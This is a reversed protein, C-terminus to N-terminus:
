EHQMSCQGRITSTGMWDKVSWSVDAFPVSVNLKIMDGTSAASVDSLNAGTESSTATITVTVSSAQCGITSTVHQTVVSTVSSNTSGDLIAARCGIRSASNLMQNVSMARGFEIIGMLILLFVPFCVAVEVMASGTRCLKERCRQQPLSSRM